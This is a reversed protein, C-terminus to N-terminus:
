FDFREVAQSLADLDRGQYWERTIRESTHRLTRTILPQPLGFGELATALSRRLSQWTMDEVGARRAVAQLRGLPTAEARGGHWAHTGAMNPFLWPVESPLVFGPPRDLRHALFDRLPEIAAIPLPIPAESNETKLRLRPRVWFMRSELDLDEVWSFFGENRRVGSFAFLTTMALLRRAKWQAWGKRERADNAMLDLVARIESRTHYTKVMPRGPRIWQRMSRVKFPNVALADMSEALNCATQIRLLHSHVTRSCVENSKATIYRAILIPTLDATTQVGLPELARLIAVLQKRTQPARMPSQYLEEIQAMFAHWPIPTM